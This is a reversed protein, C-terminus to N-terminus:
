VENNYYYILDDCITLDEIMYARLFPVNFNIKEIKENIYHKNIKFTSKFDPPILLININIFNNIKSILNITNKKKILKINDKKNLFILNDGHLIEDLLPRDKRKYFVYYQNKNNVGFIIGIGDYEKFGPEKVNVFDINNLEVQPLNLFM